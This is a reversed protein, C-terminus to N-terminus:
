SLPTRQMERIITCSFSAIKSAKGQHSEDLQRDPPDPSGTQYLRPKVAAVLRSM